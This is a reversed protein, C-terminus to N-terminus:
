GALDESLGALSVRTEGDAKRTRIRIEANQIDKQNRQILERMEHTHLRIPDAKCAIFDDAPIGDIRQPRRVSRQRGNVFITMWEAKREQQRRKEEKSRKRKSM